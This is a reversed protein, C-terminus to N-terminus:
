SDGCRPTSRRILIKTLLGHWMQIFIALSALLIIALLSDTILAIFTLLMMVIITLHHLKTILGPQYSVIIAATLAHGFFGFKSHGAIRKRRAVTIDIRRFQLTNLLAGLYDIYNMTALHKLVPLKMLCFQNTRASRGTGLWMFLQFFTYCFRFFLPEGRKGRLACVLDVDTAKEIMEAIYRVDDQGDADMVLTLCPSWTVALKFGKLLANGVGHRHQLRVVTLSCKHSSQEHFWQKLLGIGSDHSCDDIALLAVHELKPIIDFVACLEAVVSVISEEENCIPLVVCIDIKQMSINKHNMQTKFNSRRRM